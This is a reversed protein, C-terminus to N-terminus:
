GAFPTNGEFRTAAPRQQGLSSSWKPTSQQVAAKPSFIDSGSMVRLGTCLRVLLLAVRCDRCDPCRGTRDAYTCDRGKSSHSRSTDFGGCRLTPNSTRFSTFTHLRGRNELRGQTQRRTPTRSWFAAGNCHHKDHVAGYGRAPEAM